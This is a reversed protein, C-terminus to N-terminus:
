FQSRSHSLREVRNADTSAPNASATASLTRQRHDQSLCAGGPLWKWAKFKCSTVECDAGHEPNAKAPVEGEFGSGTRSGARSTVIPLPSFHTSNSRRGTAALGDAGPRTSGSMQRTM